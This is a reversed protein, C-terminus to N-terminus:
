DRRLFLEKEFSVEDDILFGWNSLKSLVINTKEVGLVGNHLELCIKKVNSLDAYKFIDYEGGEIDIILFTPKINYIEQNLSKVNINIKQKYSRSSAPLASSMWFDKHLYFAQSGSQEGLMCIKLNPAVNNLKYNDRIYPELQPNAEYTFVRKSGIKKACYSSLFGIGTGLEMVIDDPELQNQVIKLESKEYTGIYIARRIHSQINDSVFVKIGNIEVIEPRTLHRYTKVLYNKLNNPSLRDKITRSKNNTPFNSWMQPNITSM